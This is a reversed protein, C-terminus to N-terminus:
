SQMWIPAFASIADQVFLNTHDLQGGKWTPPPTVEELSQCIQRGCNRCTFTIFVIGDQVSIRDCWDQDLLEHECGRAGAVLIHYPMQIPRMRPPYYTFTEM